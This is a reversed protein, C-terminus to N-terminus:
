GSRQQSTLVIRIWVLWLVEVPEYKLPTTHSLVVDVQWGSKELQQEVYKKIEDSPQEDEWWGWGYAIRIAKDISYAEGMVVTQKGKLDFIEGDKAFLISPYEEEYFVTGVHWLKEKYSDIMYPRQEHNGHIAFITIPLSELVGFLLYITMRLRFVGAFYKLANLIGM